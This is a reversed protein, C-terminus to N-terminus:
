SNAKLKRSVHSDIGAALMALAVLPNVLIGLLVVGVMAIIFGFVIVFTWVVMPILTSQFLGMVLSTVTLVTGLTTVSKSVKFM